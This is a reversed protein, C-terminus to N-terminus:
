PLLVKDVVHIVGNSAQVDVAIINSNRSNSDTISAGTASLNITFSSGDLFTPVIQGNTLSTSLVNAGSVVHYKLTNELTAQPVSALDPLSLEELLSVFAANTPAFVTFPGAGNLIGVFDPQDGRTLAQVLVSFNPDATAFTVVTPLPIVTGVVHIVGNSAMIDPTAVAVTGNILVGEATNIFMSLNSNTSGYTALTRVYGTSLQNSMVRGSVVHNLLVQTLVPLPVDDISAFGNQTLFNNFAQNTPAFVTLLNTGNVADVLGARTLAQVLISFDANNSAINAITNQQPTTNNDDDSCSTLVGFSVFLFLFKCFLNIKKM